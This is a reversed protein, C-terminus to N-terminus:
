ESVGQYGILLLLPLVALDCVFRLTDDSWQLRLQVKVDSSLM